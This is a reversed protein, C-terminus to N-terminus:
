FSPSVYGLSTLYNSCIEVKLLATLPGHVVVAPHGEHTKTYESDYHIRHGNFTLASVVASLFM